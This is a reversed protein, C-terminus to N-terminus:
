VAHKQPQLYGFFGVCVCPSQAFEDMFSKGFWRGIGTARATSKKQAQYWWTSPPLRLAAFYQIFDQWCVQVSTRDAQAYQQHWLSWCLWMPQSTVFTPQVSPHWGVAIPSWSPSGWSSSTGPQQPQTRNRWIGSPSRETLHIFNLTNFQWYTNDKWVETMLDVLCSEVVLVFLWFCYSKPMLLSCKAFREKLNAAISNM